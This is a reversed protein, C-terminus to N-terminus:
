KYKKKLTEYWSEDEYTFCNITIGNYFPKRIVEIRGSKKNYTARLVSDPLHGTYICREYNENYTIRQIREITCPGTFLNSYGKDM